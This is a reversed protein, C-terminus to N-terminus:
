SGIPMSRKTKLSIFKDGAGAGEPKRRARQLSRVTLTDLAKSRAEAESPHSAAFGSDRCLVPACRRVGRIPRLGIRSAGTLALQSRSLALTDAQCKARSGFCVKRWRM